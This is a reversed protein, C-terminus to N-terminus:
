GSCDAIPREQASGGPKTASRDLAWPNADYYTIRPKARQRWCAPPLARRVRGAARVRPHQAAPPPQLGRALQRHRQMHSLSAFWHQSLCEDRFRSNFSEIYANQVPKGPQIFRLEVQVEQGPLLNGVSVQFVNPREQDLLFAGDGEAMAEDYTEFAKEREEVSGAILRDGIRISFGCVAAEEPLPFLYTAEIANKEINRFRQTLCWEGVRGQLRGSLRCGILPVAEGSKGIVGRDSEQQHTTM